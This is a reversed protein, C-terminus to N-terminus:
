NTALRLLGFQGSGPQVPTKKLKIRINNRVPTIENILLALTSNRIAQNEINKFNTKYTKVQSKYTQFRLDANEFKNITMKKSKFNKNLQNLKRKLSIFNENRKRILENSM